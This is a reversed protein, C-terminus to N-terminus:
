IAGKTRGGNADTAKANRPPQRNRNRQSRAFCEACGTYLLEMRDLNPKGEDGETIMDEVIRQSILLGDGTLLLDTVAERVNKRAM